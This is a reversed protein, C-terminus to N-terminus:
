NTLVSRVNEITVDNNSVWISALETLKLSSVHTSGKESFLVIQNYPENPFILSTIVVRGDNAFVEVSSTDIFIQLKIRGDNM